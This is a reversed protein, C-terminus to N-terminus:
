SLNCYAIHSQLYQNLAKLGFPPQERRQAGLRGASLEVALAYDRGSGPRPGPGQPSPRDAPKAAATSSTRPGGEKSRPTLPLISHNPM